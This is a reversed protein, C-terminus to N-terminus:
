GNTVLDAPYLRKLRRNGLEEKFLENALNNPTLTSDNETTQVTNEHKKKSRQYKYIVNSKPILCIGQLM